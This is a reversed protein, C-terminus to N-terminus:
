RLVLVVGYNFLKMSCQGKAGEPNANDSNKNLSKYKCTQNRPNPQREGPGKM